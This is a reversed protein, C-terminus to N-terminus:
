MSGSMVAITNGAPDNFWANNPNGRAIGDADTKVFENDYQNFTVGKARLAAVTAELDAVPFMLVTFSAPEHAAGKPYILARGGGAFDIALVGNEETVDLGLVDEYFAQATPVDDVSFSSFPQVQRFM